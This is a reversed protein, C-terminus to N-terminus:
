GLPKTAEGTSRDLEQHRDDTISVGDLTADVDCVVTSDSDDLWLVGVRAGLIKRDGEVVCSLEVNTSAIGPETGSWHGRLVGDGILQTGILDYIDISLFVPLGRLLESAEKIVTRM